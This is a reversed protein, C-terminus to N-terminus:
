DEISGRLDTHTSSQNECKPMIRKMSSQTYTNTFIDNRTLYLSTNRPGNLLIAEHIWLMLMDVVSNGHLQRVLHLGM